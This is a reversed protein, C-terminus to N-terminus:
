DSHEILYCKGFSLEQLVTDRTRRPKLRLVLDFRVAGLVVEESKKKGGFGVPLDFLFLMAWYKKPPKNESTMDCSKQLGKLINPECEYLSRESM